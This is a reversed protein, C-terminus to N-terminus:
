FGLYDAIHETATMHHAEEPLYDELYAQAIDPDLNNLLVHIHPFIPRKIHLILEHPDQERRIWFAKIQEFPYLKHNVRIGGPMLACTIVEPARLNYTAILGASILIIIAFLYMQLIIVIVAAAIAIIGLAWFWDVSKPRLEYEVTQWEIIERPDPLAIPSNPQSLEQHPTDM